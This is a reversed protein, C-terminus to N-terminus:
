IRGKRLIKRAPNNEDDFESEDQIVVISGKKELKEREKIVKDSPRDGGSYECRTLLLRGFKQTQVEIFQM